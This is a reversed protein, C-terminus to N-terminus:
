FSAYDSMAGNILDSKNFLCIRVVDPGYTQPDYLLRQWKERSNMIPPVQEAGEPHHYWRIYEQYLRDVKELIGHDKKFTVEYRSLVRAGLERHLQIVSPSYTESGEAL